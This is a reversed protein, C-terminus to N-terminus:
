LRKACRFGLDGYAVNPSDVFRDTTRLSGLILQDGIM